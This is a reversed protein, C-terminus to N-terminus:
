KSSAFPIPPASNKLNERDDFYDGSHLDFLELDARYNTVIENLHIVEGIMLNVDNGSCLVSALVSTGCKM